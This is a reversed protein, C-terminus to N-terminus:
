LKSPPRLGGSDKGEGWKLDGGQIRSIWLTLIVIYIFLYFTANIVRNLM